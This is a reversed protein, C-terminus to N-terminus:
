YDEDLKEGNNLFFKKLNFIIKNKNRYDFIYNEDIYDILFVTM